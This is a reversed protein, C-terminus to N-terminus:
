RFKKNGSLNPATKKARHFHNPVQHGSVLLLSQKPRNKKITPGLHAAFLSFLNYTQEAEFLWVTLFIM